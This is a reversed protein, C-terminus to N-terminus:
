PMTLSPRTLRISNGEKIVTPSLIRQRQLVQPVPNPVIVGQVDPAMTHYWRGQHSFYLGDELWTSDKAVYEGSVLVLVDADIYTVVVQSGAPGHLDLALKDGQPSWTLSIASQESVIVKKIVNGRRDCIWVQRLAQDDIIVALYQGQPSWVFDLVVTDKLWTVSQGVQQDFVALGSRGVDLTVLYRGNPDTRRKQDSNRGADLSETTKQDIIDSPTSWFSSLNAALRDRRQKTSPHTRFATMSPDRADRSLLDDLLTVSGIGDFGAEVALIQGVLDAEFEAERGWGLSILQLLTSSALRMLDASAADLAIAGVEFLVTLGMQRLVGGVGHKKEIHAIEHALVASLKAEDDGIANVLGKTVLVYGGPLAFANLDSSSLVTLTYDLNQRDTVAVLRRFIEEVWLRERIPLVHEGGYEKVIEPATGRGLSREFREGFSDTPAAQAVASQSALALVLVLTLWRWKGLGMTKLVVM